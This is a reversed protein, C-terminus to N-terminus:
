RSREVFHAIRAKTAPREALSALRLQLNVLLGEKCLGDPAPDRGADICAEALGLLVERENEHIADINVGTAEAQNRLFNSTDSGLGSM